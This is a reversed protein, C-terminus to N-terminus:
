DMWLPLYTKPNVLEPSWVIGEIRYRGKYWCAGAEAPTAFGSANLVNWLFLMSRVVWNTSEVTGAGRLAGHPLFFFISLPCNM